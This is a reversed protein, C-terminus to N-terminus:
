FRLALTINMLPQGGISATRPDSRVKGFTNPNKFDVNTTPPNFNYHKFANQMDWRVQFDFREGFKFNKAASVQTWVLNPGIVANRGLTGPTFAAPYAFDNINLIPAIGALSFRDPSNYVDSRWTDIMQIDSSAADPRRIGAFTPYYNNPSNAFSFDLPNGSELTQIASLEWGGFLHRMAGTSSLWRKGPGFPLEYTAVGMWRHKRHFDSLAKELRRNTLPAVGTGDNNNSQSDISRSLTYFTIFSVGGSLRKELKVTGSHFTSHGFNSRLFIDGFQNFPRFDQPRNFAAQRLAPDDAGFTIPFSNINWREILGIGSSGQYTLEVLYNRKLSYQLGASFNLAYANKLNQDWWDVTRGSFNNGTVQIPSTGDPLINFAPPAPTQSIRAFPRPDGAARIQSATGVYEAFNGRTSPFKIDITNVGLGGRFVLKENLKWALGFRPQFNNKDRSALPDGTHVIAGQKGTLADIATPDFNSHQGYKTRYQGESMYRVGINITINPTVKWDDQVYFSNFNGRPLWSALNNTFEAERYYGMLFGAFSNGTNPVSQGGAQLASTMGDFYFRGSPTDVQKYNARLKILEYGFKFSHSAYVKTVDARWSLTESVENRPGTPYIGYLTNASGAGDSNAGFAPPLEDSVNPIGLQQAIGEQYGPVDRHLDRRNYGFRTDFIMTPNLVYNFGLSWNSNMSPQTFGDVADFTMVDLGRPFRQLGQNYNSTFAWFMRLNPTFQHDVRANFDYFFVRSNENYQLNDSPGNSTIAGTLNPRRWPDIGLLAQAVPDFQSRPVVNNPLPDRTWTGDALRRTTTPDYIPNGVGGFSFDGNLMGDTPVTAFAQATKKEILHQLGTFFFTKNKIFPGGLSFDPLFFISQTGNPLGDQPQSTRQRDFFLRHQMSRSRGYLSALGHFQNTGSKKVVDMVGAGTHGYEAPVNTTIVKIEEVSNLVPKIYETGALADNTPVGDDFAATATNRQGAVRYSGLGGGYAYGGTTLGPVFNFTSAAYRQYNPLKYMTEGELVAGAASTETELLPTDATVEIQETVAGIELVADVPLTAGTRLELNERIYTKFGEAEITVRYPGPQLGPVRFLGSENSVSPQTFNTSTNTITVTAGPIVAGTSDTLRGTITGVGLQGFVAAALLLALGILKCLQLRKKSM